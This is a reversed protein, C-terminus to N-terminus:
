SDVFQSYLGKTSFLINIQNHTPIVHYLMGNFNVIVHREREIASGNTSFESFGSNEESDNKSSEQDSFVKDSLESHHVKKRLTM